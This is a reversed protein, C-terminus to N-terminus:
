PPPPGEPPPGGPPPAGPPPSGPPPSGPRPGPRFPDRLGRLERDLRERQDADLLPALAARLSDVGARLRENADRIIADNRRGTAELLPRIAERQASDHPAIVREMHAVFGPPRRIERARDRQHQALRGAGVAGLLVGAALTAALLLASRLYPTM